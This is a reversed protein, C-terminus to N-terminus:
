REIVLYLTGAKTDGGQAITVTVGRIIVPPDLTEGDAAIPAAGAAAHVATKPLFTGDAAIDSKSFLTAGTIQDVVTLDTTGALNGNEIGVGILKGPGVNPSVTFAGGADTLGLRITKVVTAM